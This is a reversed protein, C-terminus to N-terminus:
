FSKTAKVKVSQEGEDLRRGASGGRKKGLPAFSLYARLAIGQHQMDAINNMYVEISVARGGEADRNLGGERM